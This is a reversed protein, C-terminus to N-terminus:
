TNRRICTQIERAVFEGFNLKDRNFIVDDAYVSLIEDLAESIDAKIDDIIPDPIKERMHNLIEKEVEIM